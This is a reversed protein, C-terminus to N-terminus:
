KNNIQIMVIKAKGHNNQILESINIKLNMLTNSKRITSAIEESMDKHM